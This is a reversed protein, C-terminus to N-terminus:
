RRAGDDHGEGANSGGMLDTSNRTNLLLSMAGTEDDRQRAFNILPAANDAVVSGIFGTAISGSSSTATSCYVPPVVPVGFPAISVCAFRVALVACILAQATSKSGPLSTM